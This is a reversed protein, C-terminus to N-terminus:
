QENEVAEWCYPTYKIRIPEPNKRMLVINDEPIIDSIVINNDKLEKLVSSIEEKTKKDKCYIVYDDDNNFTAILEILNKQEETLNMSDLSIEM